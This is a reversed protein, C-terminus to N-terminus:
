DSNRLIHSSSDALPIIPNLVSNVVKKCLTSNHQSNVGWGVKHPTSTYTPQSHSWTRKNIFFLHAASKFGKQNSYPNLLGSMVVPLIYTSTKKKLCNGWIKLQHSKSLCSLSLLVIRCETRTGEPDKQQESRCLGQISRQGSSTHDWLLSYATSGSRGALLSPLCHYCPIYSCKSIM